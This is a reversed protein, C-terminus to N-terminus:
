PALDSRKAEQAAVWGEAKEIALRTNGEFAMSESQLVLDETGIKLAYVREDEGVTARASIGERFESERARIKDPDLMVVWQGYSTSFTALATSSEDDLKGRLQLTGKRERGGSLASRRKFLFRLHRLGGYIALLGMLGFAIRFAIPAEKDFSVFGAAFAVFAAGIAILILTRFIAAERLKRCAAM